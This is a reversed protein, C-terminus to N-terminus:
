KQYLIKKGFTIKTITDIDIYSYQNTEKFKYGNLNNVCSITNEKSNKDIYSVKLNKGSDSIADQIKKALLIKQPIDNNKLKEEVIFYIYSSTLYYVKDIMEEIKSILNTKFYDKNYCFEEILSVIQKNSLNELKINNFFIPINNPKNKVFSNYLQKDILDDMNADIDCSKM